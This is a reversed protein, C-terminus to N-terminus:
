LLLSDRVARRLAGDMADIAGMIDQFDSYCLHTVVQTAAGAVGCTLRFADVAWSLYGDWRGRKLPLGERLAPEDVKYKQKNKHKAHSTQPHSPLFLPNASRRRRSRCPPTCARACACVCVVCFFCWLVCCRLVAGGVVLVVLFMM